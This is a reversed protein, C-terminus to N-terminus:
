SYQIPAASQFVVEVKEPTKHLGHCDIHHGCFTIKENFFECKTKNARLGHTQLSRLVEKPNALHEEDNKGTIIMVDLICSIRSTGELVQDIPRQWPTSLSYKKSDEEMELQHYAQRLDIKLFKQGVALNEFIDEICPLPYQEAQLEPNVTVKYDGCLRVSGDKKLVPVIPTAWESWEVKTLSGENQLRRLEVGVKLKLAFPMPRAM